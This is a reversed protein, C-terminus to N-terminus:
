LIVSSTVLIEVSDSASLGGPDTVTLTVRYV